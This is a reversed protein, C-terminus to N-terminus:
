IGLLTSSSNVVDLHQLNKRVDSKDCVFYSFWQFTVAKGVFYFRHLQRNSKSLVTCSVILFLIM